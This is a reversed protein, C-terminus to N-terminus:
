RSHASRKRLYRLLRLLECTEPMSSGFLGPLGNMADYWGPKDAEMEIGMGYPDLTAFKMLALHLLKAFLSTQYIDGKGHDTRVWNPLEARANIMAQIEEDRAVAGFQHPKQDILVYKKDRPLVVEPSQYYPLKLAQFLLQDKKEPFIRLYNEILDLNYTWHDVWYGEGFETEIQQEAQSLVQSIFAEFPMHVDLDHMNIAQLVEGPTFPRSIVEALVKKPKMGALLIEQADLSLTFKSGKVILPNYGDLQILSMFTKINHAEVRPNFLVDCRRNQNVDRYGGNGQSYFEAALTFANYDRELDGHKRSFIHYIHPNAEKEIVEPWGGRLINDLFTQKCYLDFAASGTQTSIRDTLMAVLDQAENQKEDLYGAASVRAYNREFVSLGPVHGVITDFSLHEQPNIQWSGAFFGCPTKGVTIQHKELMEPLTSAHFNSPTTLSTNSGFIVDPDVIAPLVKRKGDHEAVVFAFNGASYTSVETFDGVSARLRYFPTNKELNDVEMWAEITRSMTKLRFDDVGFPILAPLGDLIEFDLKQDSINKLTMRRVLGAFSEGPLIFYTVNIQIGLAPNIEEIELLNMGIYMCRTLEANSRLPSFPEYCQTQAGDLIKLFTRFGTSATNRYAQNAPQFELIPHDKNEIGFSCVGQGRNVYFVWMPVGLSGAIGPLFSSFPRVLDYDRLIYRGKDDFFTYKEPVAKM